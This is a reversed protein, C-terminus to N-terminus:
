RTLLLRAYVGDKIVGEEEQVGQKARRVVGLWKMLLERRQGDNRGLTDLGREVLAIQIEEPDLEAVVKEPGAHRLLLTDDLGLYEM